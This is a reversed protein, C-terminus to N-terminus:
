MGTSAGPVSADLDAKHNRGGPRARVLLVSRDSTTQLVFLSARGVVAALVCPALSAPPCRYHPPPPPPECTNMWTNPTVCSRKQVAQSLACM